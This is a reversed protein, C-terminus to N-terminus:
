CAAKNVIKVALSPLGCGASVVAALLAFGWNYGDSRRGARAAGEGGFTVKVSGPHLGLARGQRRRFFRM